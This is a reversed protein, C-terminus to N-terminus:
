NNINNAKALKKLLKRMTFLNPMNNFCIQPYEQNFKFPLFELQWPRSEQQHSINETEIVNFKVPDAEISQSYEFLEPCNTNIKIVLKYRVHNYNLTAGYDINEKEIAMIQELNTTYEDNSLNNEDYTQWCWDEIDEFANFLRETIVQIAWLKSTDKEMFCHKTKTKVPSIECGKYPTLQGSEMDQKFHQLRVKNTLNNWKKVKKFQNTRTTEEVTILETLENWEKFHKQTAELIEEPDTIIETPIVLNHYTVATKHRLLISDIIKTTNSAFNNYPRNINISESKSKQVKLKRATFLINRIMKFKLRTVSYDAACLDDPVVEKIELLTLKVVKTILRNIKSAVQNLTIPSVPAKIQKLIKNMLTLGRDINTTKFTYNHFTKKTSYTFSIYKNAEANHTIIKLPEASNQKFPKQNGFGPPSQQNDTALANNNITREISALNLIQTDQFLFPQPIKENNTQQVVPEEQHSSFKTSHQFYTKLVKTTVIIDQYKDIPLTIVQHLSYYDIIEKLDEITKPLQLKTGNM